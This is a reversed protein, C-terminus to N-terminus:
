SLFYVHPTSSLGSLFAVQLLYARFQTHWFFSFFGGWEGRQAARFHWPVVCDDQSSVAVCRAANVAESDETRGRAKANLYSACALGSNSDVQCLM